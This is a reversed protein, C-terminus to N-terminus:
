ASLTSPTRYERSELFGLVWGFERVAKSVELFVKSDPHSELLDGPARGIFDSEAYHAKLDSFFCSTVYDQFDENKTLYDLFNNHLTTRLDVANPLIGIFKLPDSPSRVDLSETSIVDLMVSVGQMGQPEPKYPIYVHTAARLAMSTLLNLAPATDIVILCYREAIAPSALWERMRKIAMDSDGSGTAFRTMEDIGIGWAPVVDLHDISTEYPIPDHTAFLIDSVASFRKEDEGKDALDPHTPPVYPSRVDNPLMETREMRLYRSSMNCQPDLDIVLVRNNATELRPSVHVAFAEAFIRCTLTKGVGGKNAFPALVRPRPFSAPAQKIVDSFLQQVQADRRKALSSMAKNLMAKLEM